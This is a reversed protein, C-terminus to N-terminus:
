REILTCGIWFVPRIGRAAPAINKDSHHMAVPVNLMQIQIVHRGRLVIFFSVEQISANGNYLWAVLENFNNLLVCHHGEKPFGLM